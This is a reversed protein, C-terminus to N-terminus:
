LGRLGMYRLTLTDDYNPALNFYYPVSLDVGVKNSTGFTPSLVGSRRSDSLPFDAWPLYGLPLGKFVLTGGKAEGVERDYDLQLENARVYWDPREPKCSTWTGNFFRFQNEGELELREASGHGTIPQQSRPVTQGPLLIQGPPMPRGPRSIVYEPADFTGVQEEVKTRMHPGSMTDGGRSVRVNGTAEVEDTLEFYHLKDGQFRTNDRQLEAAGEAVADVDQLGSVKDGIIVTTGPKLPQVPAPAPPMGRAVRGPPPPKDAARPAKVVAGAAPRAAVAPAPEVAAPAAVPAPAPGLLAPSVFFPPLTEAGARGWLAFLAVSLFRLQTRPKM